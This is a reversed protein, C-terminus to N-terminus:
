GDRTSQNTLYEDIRALRKRQNKSVGYECFAAFLSFPGIVICSCITIIALGGSTWNWFYCALLVLLCSVFLMWQICIRQHQIRMQRRLQGAVRKPNKGKFEAEPDFEPKIDSSTESM